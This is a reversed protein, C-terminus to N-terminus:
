THVYAYLPEHIYTRRAEQGGVSLPTRTPTPAGSIFPLPPCLAACAHRAAQRAPSVRPTLEAAKGEDLLSVRQRRKMEMASAEALPLTLTPNLTDVGREVGVRRERETTTATRIWINYSKVITKCWFVVLPTTCAGFDLAADIFSSRVRRLVLRSDPKYWSVVRLKLLHM